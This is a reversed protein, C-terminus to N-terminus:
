RDCMFLSCMSAHYSNKAFNEFQYVIEAEENMLPLMESESFYRYCYDVPCKFEKM